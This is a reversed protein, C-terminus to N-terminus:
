SAPQTGVGTTITWRRRSSGHGTLLCSGGGTTGDVLFEVRAITRDMWRKDFWTAMHEDAALEAGQDLLRGAGRIVHVGVNAVGWGRDTLSTWHRVATEIM